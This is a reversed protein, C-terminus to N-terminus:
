STGKLIECFNLVEWTDEINEETVEFPQAFPFFVHFRDVAPKNGEASKTHNQHYSGITNQPYLLIKLCKLLQKIM